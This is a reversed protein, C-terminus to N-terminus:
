SILNLYLYFVLTFMLKNLHTSSYPLNYPTSSNWHVLQTVSCSQSEAPLGSGWNPPSPPLTTLPTMLIQSRSAHVVYGLAHTTLWFMRSDNGKLIVSYLLLSLVASHPFCLSVYFTPLGRYDDRRIRIM